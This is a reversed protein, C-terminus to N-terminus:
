QALMKLLLNAQDLIQGPSLASFPFLLKGDPTFRLRNNEKHFISIIRQSDLPATKRFFVYIRKGDYGMKKGQLM